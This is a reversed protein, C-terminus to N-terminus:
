SDKMAQDRFCANMKEELLTNKKFRLKTFFIEDTESTKKEFTFGHNKKVIPQNIPIKKNKNVPDKHNSCVLSKKDKRSKKL